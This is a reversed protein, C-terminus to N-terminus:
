DPLFEDDRLQALTFPRGLPFTELAIGTEIAAERRADPYIEDAIEDAKARLSPNRKERRAANSRERQITLRWSRSRKAPQYRWKLLHSLLLRYSSELAFRQESGMSELEEIVNTLDLASFRGHRVLEAQEYAWQHFDDEYSTLTEVPARTKLDVM